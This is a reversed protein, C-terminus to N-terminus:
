PFMQQVLANGTSLPSCSPVEDHFFQKQHCRDSGGQDCNSRRRSLNVEASPGSPNSHFHTGSRVGTPMTVVEAVTKSIVAAASDHM